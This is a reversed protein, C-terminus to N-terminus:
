NTFQRNMATAIKTAYEALDLKKPEEQRTSEAVNGESGGTASPHDITQIIRQPKEKALETLQEKLSRSTQKSLEAFATERSGEEVKGLAVQVTTVSEALVQHTYAALTTSQKVAAKNEAEAVALKDKLDTVEDTLAKKDVELADVTEQLTQKEAVLLVNDAELTAVRGNAEDLQEQLTPGEEGAPATDGEQQGEPTGEPTGGEPTTGDAQGETQTQADPEGAPEAPASEAVGNLTDIQALIDDTHKEVQNMGGEGTSTSETQKAATDKHVVQANSDAPVNVWSIEDFNMEGIIWHAQKGEYTRGKSHGCYGEKVLDKACISCTVSKTNGGISLTKYRGDMVKQITAPDTIELELQITQKDPAINSAMYKASKVRGLPEEHVDHNKIVPKEYPKTWSEVSMELNDAPYFTYNRTLGSHIAEVVTTIKDPLGASSKASEQLKNIEATPITAEVHEQINIHRSM